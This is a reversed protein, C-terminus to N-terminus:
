VDYRQLIATFREPCEPYNEDWTCFHKTMEDNYVIGTNKRVIQKANQATAYDDRIFENEQGKKMRLKMNEKATMLASTLANSATACTRPSRRTSPKDSTFKDM